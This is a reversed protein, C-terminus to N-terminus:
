GVVIMVVFGYCVANIMLFLMKMKAKMSNHLMAKAWVM